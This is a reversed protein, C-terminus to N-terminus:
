RPMKAKVRKRWDVLMQRLQAAKEPMAPALNETEGIDSALDYLELRGDDFFEILKFDGVRIAGSPVGAHANRHPYHFYIADRDLDSAPSELLPAISIGDVHQDPLPDVGALDLITPYFDTSVVPASSVGGPEIMPERIGGEYLHGKGMRLPLNTLGKDKGGPKPAAGGNDSFFIVVTRESL